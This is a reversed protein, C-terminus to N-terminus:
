RIIDPPDFRGLPRSTLSNSKHDYRLRRVRLVDMESELVSRHHPDVVKGKDTKATLSGLIQEQEQLAGRVSPKTSDPTPVNKILVAAPNICPFERMALLVQRDVVCGPTPDFPVTCRPRRGFSMM